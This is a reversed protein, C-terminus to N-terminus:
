LLAAAQASAAGKPLRVGEASLVTELVSLLLLVWRPQSSHGMLGIRWTKGRLPGLGGAIEIGYEQLMRTRVRADDVGEPITVTTITPSRDPEAALLELGMAQLGAWFARTNRWHRAVRADIGEEM